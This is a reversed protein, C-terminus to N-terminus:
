LKNKAFVVYVDSYYNSFQKEGQKNTTGSDNIVLIVINCTQKIPKTFWAILM